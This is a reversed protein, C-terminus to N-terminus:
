IWMIMSHQVVSAQADAKEKRFADRASRSVGWPHYRNSGISVSVPGVYSGGPAALRWGAAGLVLVRRPKRFANLIKDFWGQKAATLALRTLVGITESDLVEKSTM